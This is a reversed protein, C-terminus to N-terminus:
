SGLCCLLRAVCDCAYCHLVSCGGGIVLLGLVRWFWCFGAFACWVYVLCFWILLVVLGVLLLMRGVFWILVIVGCLRAFRYCLVFSSLCGCSCVVLFM